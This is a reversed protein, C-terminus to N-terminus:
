IEVSSKMSSFIFKPNLFSWNLGLFLTLTSKPSLSNIWSQNKSHKMWLIMWKLESSVVFFESFDFIKLGSIELGCVLFSLLYVVKLLFISLLNAPLCINLMGSTPVPDVILREGWFYCEKVLDPTPEFKLDPLTFASLLHALAIYPTALLEFNFFFVRTLIYFTALLKSELISPILCCRLSCLLIKLFLSSINRFNVIM